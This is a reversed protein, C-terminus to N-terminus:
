LFSVTGLTGLEGDAIFINGVPAQLDFSELRAGTEVDLSNFIAARYSDATITVGVDTRETFFQELNKIIADKMTATNPDITNFTFDTSNPTPALVIVDDDSTHGPKITLISDKVDQVEGADPIINDDDDRTFYITVQGVNPTIEKIFVRTVGSVEKAKNNIQASNFNAVPNQWRDLVRTRFDEDSELDTGGSLGDFTVIASSNAGPIASTLNLQAGNAQNTNLGETDAEVPAVATTYAALITGTAPTAPTTAITYTLETASTATITFTGNYETENAGSITVSIGSGLNHASAFVATVVSGSRTLSSIGASQDAITAEQTTTYAISDSSQLGTGLPIVTTSTGTFIINGSAAIAPNRTVRVFSGWRELFEETATDPFIEQILIDLQRYFDFVAGSYGVLLANLFSDALFPNSEPLAQQVDNRVSDIVEQESDPINLTM